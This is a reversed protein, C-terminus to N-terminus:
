RKVQDVGFSELQELENTIKFASYILERAELEAITRPALLAATPSAARRL